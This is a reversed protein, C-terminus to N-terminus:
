PTSTPGSGRPGGSGRPEGSGSGRLETSSSGRYAGAGAEVSASGASSGSGRYMGSGVEAPANGSGSSSKSLEVKGGARLQNQGEVVVQEGGALGKALIARDGTTLAIAVPKMEVTKNQDVVFVYPGNPGQQVAVAPIVLADKRDEVLMRAKVFANPWLKHDPNPVLAKLKLTATTQNIQNDLVALEGTGILVGGDRNHIEVPVKGRALAAAIAGLRDQPVTFLVAAPNIATIVVLGTADAAHVINGADVLRVGTIGDAPAKVTAYDLNLKAMEIQSQDIKMAGEYQGVEGVYQDVQQQAVLKQAFLDQYRKLNRMSTDRLATDRALAGQANHLQVLFPRPDIEAIVDGKKVDQGETFAVKDLRGDVQVHVMVQQFAAVTGLGEIWIPMDKREATAVEVPVIRGQASSAGASSDAASAPASSSGGRFKMFYVAGGIVILAIAIRLITNRMRHPARGPPLQHDSGIAHDGAHEVEPNVPIAM